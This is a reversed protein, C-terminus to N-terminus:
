CKLAAIHLTLINQMTHLFRNEDILVGIHRVRGAIKFLVVAGAQPSTQYWKSSGSHAAALEILFNSVVEQSEPTDYKWVDPVEQGFEKLVALVLGICDFGDTSRGHSKFPIGIYKEILKEAQM